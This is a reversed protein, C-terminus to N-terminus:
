GRGRGRRRAAAREVGDAGDVETASVEIKERLSAESPYLVRFESPEEAAAAVAEALETAGAGGDAFHTSLACRAGAEEAIQRIADHESPFDGPFANIAVVPSIGHLRINEIQRRLNSGGVLVDDPNEVLLEEPLPKGAVVHHRGSHVKLARVTAVVVAADPVLGSERCKINFFREAGMDAGFGAETLLYDGTHIGILDAVVSSNGTAINGFPGAHVIAPTNELTQMLNPKLAERLVATMTGAARMQEATVPEQTDRTYGVVIRGLRARLDELSTALALTSM